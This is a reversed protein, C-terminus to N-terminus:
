TTYILTRPAPHEARLRPWFERPTHFLAVAPDVNTAVLRANDIDPPLPAFPPAAFYDPGWASSGFQLPAWRVNIRESDLLTLYDRTANGYGTGPLFGAFLLGSARPRM